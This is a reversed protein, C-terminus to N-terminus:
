HKRAEVQCGKLRLEGVINDVDETDLHIITDEAGTAPVVVTFMSLIKAGYKHIVDLVEKVPEGAACNFIHLRTGPRGFGLAQTWIRFLDTTTIIGVLKGDDLVPFTGIGLKQGLAAAEELPTDPHVTVVDKVMVDKVKMKSILYNLEWISLSTAPSPSVERLRDRTVLGVLKGRKDVVPLRRIKRERMIKEAEQIPTEPDVTVVEKTMYEKVFM